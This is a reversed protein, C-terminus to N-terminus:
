SQSKPKIQSKYTSLESTSRIRSKINNNDVIYINGDMSYAKSIVKAKLFQRCEYFTTKRTATLDESIFINAGSEKLQKRGKIFNLRASYNTFKVILERDRQNPGSRPKGVRHARDIDEAKLSVSMRTALDMILGNPDEDGSEQMGAVRVCMRRSYQEQDDIRAKLAVVENITERRFKRLEIIEEKLPAIEEAVNLSVMAEIMTQTEATILSKVKSVIRNVDDDSLSLSLSPIPSAIGPYMVPERYYAMPDPVSSLPTPSQQQEPTHSVAMSASPSFASSSTSVSTTVAPLGSASSTITISTTVPTSILSSIVPVPDSVVKVETANMTTMNEMSMNPQSELDSDDYITDLDVCPLSEAISKVKKLTTSDPQLPSKSKSRKKSKRKQTM